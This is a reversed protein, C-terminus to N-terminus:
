KTNGYTKLTESVMTDISFKTEVTQKLAKGLINRDVPNDYLVTLAELLEQQDESTVLIGNKKDEVVEPIGGVRSAIVPKEAFGAELLAYPLGESRSPLVFIDFGSLYSRASDLYDTFFVSEMIGMNSAMNHLSIREEGVGTILLKANKGEVFKKWVNLLVDLGKIKHLESLTGVITTSSLVKPILKERAEDREHLEFKKIGNHIVVLKDKIKPFNEVDRKLKQSVCITKHSLLITLWYLFKIIKKESSTWRPENFTWGHSTFIVSKIRLLRGAVSGAVGMKTSNIHFVDPREKYLIKLLAFFSQFDGKISVERGLAPLTIPFIREHQLKDVLVGKGGCVVVVDHGVKKYETALDLVYRQAGGLNSKTIGLLIKM